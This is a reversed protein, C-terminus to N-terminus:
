EIMGYLTDFIMLIGVVAIFLGNILCYAIRLRVRKIHYGMLGIMLGSSLVGILTFILLLEGGSFGCLSYALYSFLYGLLYGAPLLTLIGATRAYEYRKERLFLILILFIIALISVSEVVM